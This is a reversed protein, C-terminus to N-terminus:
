NVNMQVSKNCKNKKTKKTKKKKKKKKDYKFCKTPDHYIVYM